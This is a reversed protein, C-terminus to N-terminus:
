RFEYLTATIRGSLLHLTRTQYLIIYDLIILLLWWLQEIFFTDMFTKCFECPFCAEPDAVKNFLSELM